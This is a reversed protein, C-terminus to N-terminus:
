DWNHHNAFIEERRKVDSVIYKTIPLALVEYAIKGAFGITAMSVLDPNPILGYFAILSFLVSDTAQGGLSSFFARAMFRQNTQNKLREFVQDNVWDGCNFSILSAIVIRWSGGVATNFISGDYWEPQPLLVSVKILIAMLFNMSVAYWTVRRSMRYGYVESFVDSLIYTLPFVLIGADSTWPGIQLMHNALINAIVLLSVFITTLGVLLPTTTTEQRNHISM